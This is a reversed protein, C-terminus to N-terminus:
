SGAIMESRRRFLAIIGGILILFAGVWAFNILPKKSVDIVLTEPKENAVFGPISILIAGQDAMIRTLDISFTKDSVTISAPIQNTIAQGNPDMSQEIAPEVTTMKGNQLIEIKAGVRMGKSSSDTMHGSLVFEKFTIVLNGILQGEGKKLVFENAHSSEQIQEPAFYYDNLLTRRIYPKRMTGQMRESYYLQPNAVLTDNKHIIRLQLENNPTTMDHLMGDYRIAHEFANQTEGKSIILKESTTFATSAIIGVLMIGFGFHTLPGGMLRWNNPLFGILTTINTTAAMLATAIFLIFLNDRVGFIISVVISIFFVVLAPILKRKLDEKFLYMSTGTVVVTFLSAFVIGAKLILGFLVFGLIASVVAVLTLIMKWDALKFNSFGLLPSFTLLFAMIVAIPIAFHNYTTIDAARSSAGFIKTILPLSTWALVILGFIILTVFGAFLSFERGFFNYNLKSTPISQSRIVLMVAAFLIFFIMFGVLIGNIGLDTFSHVSFDALVGSRTLFTGYIVLLFVFSALILNIRRLAGSYKEIIMGHLLALSIVWPIFSSNEVPDWAWFGGWGLTKYAWFGGLINGAALSIVTVAVWPFARRIWGSYDKMILAAMGIAFPVSAMSYGIFVVPPHIVMWPDRLLPNLGQGDPPITQMLAFPSLKALISLLFLNVLTFVAMGYNKYQGGYKIILFGFLSNFFLWLLYTGEQGGWFASLIYFSSQARESYEYVYKIAFNHSYFLFYLYAVALATFATFLTYSSKSLLEYSRNGFAVKLYAIGAIVNCGLAFFILLDGPINPTM